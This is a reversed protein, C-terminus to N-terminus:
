YDGGFGPTFRMGPSAKDVAAITGGRHRIEGLLSKLQGSELHTQHHKGAGDAWRVVTPLKDRPTDKPVVHVKPVYGRYGAHAVGALALMATMLLARTM